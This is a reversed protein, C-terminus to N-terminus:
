PALSARAPDVEDVLFVEARVNVMICVPQTQEADEYKQYYRALARVGDEDSVSSLKTRYILDALARTYVADTRERLDAISGIGSEDEFFPDAPYYYGNAESADDLYPIGRGYYIENLLISGEILEKAAALVEAEDYTRDKEACGALLCPLLLSLVLLILLSKAFLHKSKM